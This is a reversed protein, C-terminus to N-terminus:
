VGEMAKLYAEVAKQTNPGWLGDDTYKGPGYFDQIQQQVGRIASPELSSHNKVWGKMQTLFPDSPGRDRGSNEQEPTSEANPIYGEMMKTAKGQESAEWPIYGEMKESAEKALESQNGEDEGFWPISNLVIALERLQPVTRDEADKQPVNAGYNPTAFDRLAFRPM